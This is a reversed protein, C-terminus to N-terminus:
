AHRYVSINARAYKRTKELALGPMEPAEGPHSLVLIGGPDAVVRALIKIKEADYKDYPPDAIVVDFKENSESLIRYVDGYRLDGSEGLSALNESITKYAIRNNEIFVVKKARRSLAEIGLAGSGSFADLIVGGAVYDNIMNFLAIKERSGMPHTGGFDPAKITRGRYKGSTIRIKDM